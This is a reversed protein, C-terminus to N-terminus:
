GKAKINQKLLFPGLLVYFRFRARIREQAEHQTKSWDSPTYNARGFSEDKHYSSILEHVQIM